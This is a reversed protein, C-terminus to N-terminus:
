AYGYINITFVDDNYNQYWQFVFTILVLSTFPQSYYVDEKKKNEKSFIHIYVQMGGLFIVVISLLYIRM